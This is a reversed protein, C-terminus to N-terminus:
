FFMINEFLIVKSCFDNLMWSFHHFDRNVKFYYDTKFEVSNPDIQLPYNTNGVYNAKFYTSLKNLPELYIEQEIQDFRFVEDTTADKLSSIILKINTRVGNQDKIWFFKVRRFNNDM